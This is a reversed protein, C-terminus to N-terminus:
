TTTNTETADFQSRKTAISTSTQTTQNRVHDTIEKLKLEHAASTAQLSASTAQLGVVYARLEELQQVIRQMAQEISQANQM